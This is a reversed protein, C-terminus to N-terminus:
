ARTADCTIRLEAEGRHTVILDYNPGLNSRPPANVYM